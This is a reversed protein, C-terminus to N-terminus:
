KNSSVLTLTAFLDEMNIPKSIHANMGAAFSKEIDEKFANATVAIIPISKANPHSAARIAKSTEVGDMIPMMMDMLIVDYDGPESKLFLELAEKGDNATIVTIGEDELSEREIELNLENDDVLLVKLESLDRAEVQITDEKEKVNVALDAVMKVIFTSGENEKSKVSITGGLMDVFRKTIALGLGTGNYNATIRREAQTFADWIYKLFEEQMGIGTDEIEFLLNVKNDDIPFTKFRFTIRGGDPTFKLANGLINIFIQRLKLEDSIIYPNEMKDFECILELDRALLQGEIITACNELLVLINLPENIPETKGSEIRSLDLVDNLLSLLHTSAEGIKSLCDMVKEQNSINKIAINTMGIVGNIPTRIDHSMYALFESKASNANGAVEMENQLLGNVEKLQGVLAENDKAMMYVYFIIIMILILLLASIFLLFWFAVQTITATQPSIYEAPVTLIMHCNASKLTHIGIFWNRNKYEIKCHTPENKEFKDMIEDMHGGAIITAKTRIEEIINPNTIMDDETKSKHLKIGNNDVLYAIYESENNNNSIIKQLNRMDIAYAIHTVNLEDTLLLPEVLRTTLLMYEIEDNIYPLGIIDTQKVDSEISADVNVGDIFASKRGNSSYYNGNNDIVMIMNGEVVLEKGIEYLMNILTQEDQPQSQKLIEGLIDNCSWYKEISIDVNQITKESFQKFVEQRENFLKTKLFGYFWNISLVSILIAILSLVILLKGGVYNVLKM